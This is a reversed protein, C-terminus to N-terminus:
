WTSRPGPVTSDACALHEGHLKTSHTTAYAPSLSQAAPQSTLVKLAPGAPEAGEPFCGAAESM